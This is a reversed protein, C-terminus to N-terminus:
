SISAQCGVSPVTVPRTGTVASPAAAAGNVSSNEGFEQFIYPDPYVGETNRLYMAPSLSTAVNAFGHRDPAGVFAAGVAVAPLVFVAAVRAVFWGKRM